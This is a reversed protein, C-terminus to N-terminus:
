GVALALNKTFARLRDRLGEFRGTREVTVENLYLARSMEIQVSHAEAKPDGMAELILGGAYPDNVAVRYGQERLLEVVAETVSPHASKGRLDGVVFDPRRAGVGDPTMANGVSKMSHWNIHWIRGHRQLLEARMETLASHYPRYVTSIRSRVESVTLLRDYVPVGPIVLRRILGLGRESKQTPRLPEPWEGALMGPDLDDLARNLDLYCRPYLALLLTVGLEECGALLEDVYADEGRRLDALPASAGFDPPYVRGSHPSDFLLPLSASRPRRLEFTDM